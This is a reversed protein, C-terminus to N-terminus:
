YSFLAAKPMGATFSATTTFYFWPLHDDMHLMVLYLLNSYAPLSGLIGLILLSKLFGLRYVPRLIM